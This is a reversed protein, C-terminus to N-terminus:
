LSAIRELVKAVGDNDNTDTVEKALEKLELVANEMAVPYGSMKFLEVDNYDDGFVLIESPEIGYHNCLKLVGTAKSVRNNMMQVLKGDDTVVFNTRNGFLKQLSQVDDIGTILIKSPELKRLDELALVQPFFKLNFIAADNLETHSFWQDKIEISIKCTPYMKNCYDLIEASLECPLSIHEEIGERLDTVFAM